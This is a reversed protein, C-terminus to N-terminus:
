LGLESAILQRQIESTGEGIELVKADRYMRSVPYEDMYGYGGFIQTASRTADVAAESAYLKAIAAEKKFSRGQDRLWAARYTLLRAADVATAMDAVRFAVGQNKGIPRGFAVRETAYRSAEDLCGQAMGVSMAAIAIRGEDLIRLFNRFGDGEAGLVHDAPVRCDQFVLGHTDSARWGMKAYKSEVVLGETGAPIVINTIQPRGGADRSTVATITVNQTIPTGSNTIFTKAGNVVWEDGDRVATTRTAGADSGAEPETLGFAGLRRGSVLDPLWRKQQEPTGFYVFPAAGLSVGAELTIAMSADVRAIEEIAICYTLYDSGGGGLDEPFPLGFLGLDGMAHVLDVPFEGTADMEAARPAISTVAFDRVVARFAEQEETLDFQM